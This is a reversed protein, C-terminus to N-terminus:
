SNKFFSDMILFINYQSDCFINLKPLITVQGCDQCSEGYKTWYDEKCFLMGDKEFYWSSLPVDCASCRDFIVYTIYVDTMGYVWALIQGGYVWFTPQYFKSDVFKNGYQRSDLCLIIVEFNGVYDDPWVM